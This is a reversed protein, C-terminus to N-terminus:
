HITQGALAAVVLRAIFVLQARNTLTQNSIVNGYLTMGSIKTACGPVFLKVNSCFFKRPGDFHYDAICAPISIRVREEEVLIDIPKRVGLVKMRFGCGDATTYSRISNNYVKFDLQKITRKLFAANKKPTMM